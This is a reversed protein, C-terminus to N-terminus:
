LRLKQLQSFFAQFFTWAQVPNSSKVEAIGTCRELWSLKCTLQSSTVFRSLSCSGTPKKVSIYFM